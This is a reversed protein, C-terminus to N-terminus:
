ISFDAMADKFESIVAESAGPLGAQYQMYLLSGMIASYAIFGAIYILLGYHFLKEASMDAMFYIICGIAAYLFLIDGSWLFFFHALGFIALWLMRSYHIKASNQGKAEAREIVLMVSAGFLLTFLGRMKGDVFVFSLAWAIVDPTDTGGYVAPSFYAMDPMAFGVINMLLIGMVAFGRMADLELYRPSSPTAPM